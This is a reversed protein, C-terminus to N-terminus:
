GSSWLVMKFGKENRLEMYTEYLCVEKGCKLLCRSQLWRVDNLWVVFDDIATDWSLKLCWLRWFLCMWQKLVIYKCGAFRLNWHENVLNLSALVCVCMEQGTGTSLILQVFRLKDGFTSLNISKIGPRFQHFNSSAASITLVPLRIVTQYTTLRIQLSTASSLNTVYM